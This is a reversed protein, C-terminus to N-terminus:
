RTELIPNATECNMRTPPSESVPFSRRFTTSKSNADGGPYKLKGRMAPVAEGTNPDITAELELELLAADRAKALGKAGGLAGMTRAHSVFVVCCRVKRIDTVATEFFTASNECKSAWRTFEEALVTMSQFTAGKQNARVQYRRKVERDFALMRRDIADYDMGAGTVPLGEWDGAARHPDLIEVAHGRQSRTRMLWEAFTSKGSGPAGYVLISPYEMLDEVWSFDDIPADSPIPANPTEIAGGLDLPAREFARDGVEFPLPNAAPPLAAVPRDSHQRDGDGLSRWIAVAVGGQAISLLKLFVHSEPKRRLIVVEDPREKVEVNGRLNSYWFSFISSPVLALLTLNALRANM